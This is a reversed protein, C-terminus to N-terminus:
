KPEVWVPMGEEKVYVQGDFLDIEYVDGNYQSREILTPSYTKTLNSINVKYIDRRVTAKATETGAPISLSSSVGYGHLTGLLVLSDALKEGCTFQYIDPRDTEPKISTSIITEILATALQRSSNYIMKNPLFMGKRVKGLRTAVRNALTNNVKVRIFYRNSKLLSWEVGIRDLIDSLMKVQQESKDEDIYLCLTPRGSSYDINGKCLVYGCLVFWDENSITAYQKGFEGYIIIQERKYEDPALYKFKRYIRNTNHIELEKAPVFMFNKGLPMDNHDYAITHEPTVTFSWNRGGIRIIEGNYHSKKLAFPQIFEADGIFNRVLVKDQGSIDKISKFGSNTFIKTSEAFAM